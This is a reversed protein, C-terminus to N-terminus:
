RLNTSAAGYLQTRVEGKTKLYKKCWTKVVINSDAEKTLNRVQDISDKVAEQIGCVDSKCCTDCPYKTEESKEVENIKDFYSSNFIFIVM